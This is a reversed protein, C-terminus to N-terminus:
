ASAQTEVSTAMVETDPKRGVWREWSRAAQHILMKMGDVAKRGREDFAKLFRTRRGYVLDVGVMESRVSEPPFPSRDGEELGLSTANVVLTVECPPDSLVSDSLLNVELTDFARVLRRAKARTRNWLFVSGANMKKFAQLCARAAGGAGLLLVGEQSIEERWPEVLTKFGYVDTNDLALKGNKWYLTNAAETAEVAKTENSVFERVTEKHPLTLNAGLGNTKRFVDLFTVLEDREVKLAFYRHPLDADRFAANHLPPSLTHSLPSGIVWLPRGYCDVSKM